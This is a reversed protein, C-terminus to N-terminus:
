FYCKQLEGKHHQIMSLSLVCMVLLSSLKWVLHRLFIKFINQGLVNLLLSSCSLVAVHGMEESIFSSPFPHRQVGGPFVFLPRGLSVHRLDTSFSIFLKPHVQPCIGHTAASLSLQLDETFAM